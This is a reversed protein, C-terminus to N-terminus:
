FICYKCGRFCFMHGRDRLFFEEDYIVKFVWEAYIFSCIDPVFAFVDFLARELEVWSLWLLRLPVTSVTYM